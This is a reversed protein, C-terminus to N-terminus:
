RMNLILSKLEKQNAVECIGPSWSIADSVIFCLYLFCLVIFLCGSLNEYICCYKFFFSLLKM